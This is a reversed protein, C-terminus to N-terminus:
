SVQPSVPVAPSTAVKRSKRRAGEGPVNPPGLPPGSVLPTDGAAGAVGGGGPVLVGRPMNFSRVLKGDIDGGDGADGCNIVLAALMSTEDLISAGV